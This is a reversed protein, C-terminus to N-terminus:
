RMGKMYNALFATAEGQSPLREKLVFNDDARVVCWKRGHGRFEIKFADDPTAFAAEHAVDLLKSLKLGAASKFMVRVWIERTGDEWEMFVLDGDDVQALHHKMYDPALAAQASTGSPIRAVWTKHVYELLSFRSAGDGAVPLFEKKAPGKPAAAEPEPENKKPPETM